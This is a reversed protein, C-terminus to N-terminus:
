SLKRSGYSAPTSYCCSQNPAMNRVKCVYTSYREGRIETKKVLEEQNLEFVEDIYFWVMSTSYLVSFEKTYSIPVTTQYNETSEVIQFQVYYTM